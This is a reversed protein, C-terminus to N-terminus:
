TVLLSQGLHSTPRASDDCVEQHVALGCSSRLAPIDVSGSGAASAPGSNCAATFVDEESYLEKIGDYINEDEAEQLSHKVKLKKSQPAYSSSKRSNYTYTTQVHQGLFDAMTERCQM